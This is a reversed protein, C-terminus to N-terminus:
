NEGTTDFNIAWYMLTLVLVFLTIPSDAVIAGLIGNIFYLFNGIQKWGVVDTEEKHFIYWILAFAGIWIITTGLDTM